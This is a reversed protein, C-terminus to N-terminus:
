GNRGGGMVSCIRHAVCAAGFGSDINVVAVGGACANLMSLLPALGGFSAGYGASTPVALVPRSTLGAVVSALAGEMGAVVIIVNSSELARVHGLLRHIGAVGVDFIREVGWGQHELTLAAEEAVSEDAAGATIVAVDKTRKRGVAAGGYSFIRGLRSYRGKRFRKALFRGTEPDVRTALASGHAKISGRVLRALQERSKGPAYLVEKMGTRLARHADFTVRGLREFPLDKLYTLLDRKSVRGRRYGELLQHLKDM